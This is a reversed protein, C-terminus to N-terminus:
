PKLSNNYNTEIYDYLINRFTQEAVHSTASSQDLLHTLFHQLLSNVESITLHTPFKKVVACDKKRRPIIDVKTLCKGVIYEVLVNQIPNGENYAKVYKKIFGKSINPSVGYEVTSAIIKHTTHEVQKFFVTKGSFCRISKEGQRDYYYGVYVLDGCIVVALDADKVPESSVIHIDVSVSHKKSDRSHIILDKDDQRFVLPHAIDLHYTKEFAIRATILVKGQKYIPENLQSM